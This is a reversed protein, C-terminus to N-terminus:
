RLKHDRMYRVLRPAYEPFSPCSLGHATLIRHTNRANLLVLRNFIDALIAPSRWSSKLGPMRALAASLSGPLTGRPPKREALTAVLQFVARASLPNPDTLHFTLGAAGPDGALIPLADVLFDVPVLNFPYRGHGPLPLQVDLPLNVMVYMFFHPGELTDIEGTRSDGVILSPRVVTVPLERAAGQVLKEALFKSEEWHTRFGQGVDLEDEMIVGDRSGAVFASSMHVFRRLDACRRAFALANRTGELNVLRMEREEVGLHYVGALHFITRVSPLLARVEAGALGLDMNVVDGGYLRLREAPLEAFDRRAQELFQEKALLHTEIGAAVLNRVLRRVVLSPYGTILVPSEIPSSLSM